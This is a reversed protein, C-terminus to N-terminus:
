QWPQPRETLTGEGGERGPGTTGLPRAPMKLPPSPCEEERTLLQWGWLLPRPALPCEPHCLHALWATVGGDMDLLAPVRHVHTGWKQRPVKVGLQVSYLLPQLTSPRRGPLRSVAWGSDQPLTSPAPSPLLAPLQPRPGYGPCSSALALSPGPFLWAQEAM